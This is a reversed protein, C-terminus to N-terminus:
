FYGLFQTYALAIHLIQYNSKIVFVLKTNFDKQTINKRTQKWIMLEKKRIEENDAYCM